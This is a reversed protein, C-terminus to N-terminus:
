ERRDQEQQVAQEQARAAAVPGPRGAEASETLEAASRCARELLARVTRVHVAQMAAWTVRTAPTRHHVFTAFLLGEQRIAFLLEAPMGIRSERGLLVMQRSRERVQWGLIADGSARKLGLATWGSLLKARTEVPAEELVARAWREATCDRDAADAVVFTDAYDVRSLTSLARVDQAPDIQRVTNDM